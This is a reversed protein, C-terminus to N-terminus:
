TCIRAKQKRRTTEYWWYARKDLRDSLQCYAKIYLWCLFFIINFEIMGGPWEFGQTKKVASNGVKERAGLMNIRLVRRRKTKFRINSLHASGETFCKKVKKTNLSCQRSKFQCKNSRQARSLKIIKSTTRRGQLQKQKQKKNSRVNRQRKECRATWFCWQREHNRSCVIILTVGYYYYYISLFEGRNNIKSKKYERKTNERENKREVQQNSLWSACWNAINTHLLVYCCFCRCGTGSEM